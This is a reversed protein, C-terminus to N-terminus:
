NSSLSISLLVSISILKVLRREISGFAFISNQDLPDIYIEPFNFSVLYGKYIFSDGKAGEANAKIHEYLEEHVQQSSNIIMNPYLSKKVDEGKWELKALYVTSEEHM